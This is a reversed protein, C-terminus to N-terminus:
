AGSVRKTRTKIVGTAELFRKAILNHMVGKTATAGIKLSRMPISAGAMHPHGGAFKEGFAKRLIQGLNLAVDNTRASVYVNGGVIGYVLTTSVGERELMFDAAQAILDRDPVAGVYSTLYSGKMRSSKIARSIVDLADSSVPPNVLKKLIDQDAIGHLYKFAELDQDTAGRSFNMTDTTIGLMLAAATARDVDIGASRLYGTMITSAAGVQTIDVHLANVEGAPTSHHDIIITPIKTEPLCCYSRTAVDVLAFTKFQDFDVRDAELMELGLVNLLARNQLHGVVGDYVLRSDVGFSKAYLKLAAASAISDPDPNTQLIIAMEGMMSREKMIERLRREKLSQTLSELRELIAGSTQGSVSVVEDAGLARVEGAAAEDEVVAIVYPRAGTEKKADSLAFLAAAASRFDATGILVFDNSSLGLSKITKSSYPSGDAVRFGLSKLLEAKRPEDPLIILDSRDRVRSALTFGFDDCGMMLYM